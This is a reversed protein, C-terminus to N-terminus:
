LVLILSCSVVKKSRVVVKKGSSGIDQGYDWKRGRLGLIIFLVDTEQMDTNIYLILGRKRADRELSKIEEHMWGMLLVTEYIGKGVDM